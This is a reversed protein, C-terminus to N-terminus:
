NQVHVYGTSWNLSKVEEERRSRRRKELTTVVTHQSVTERWFLLIHERDPEGGDLVLEVAPEQIFIRSFM